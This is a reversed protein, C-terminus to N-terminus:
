CVIDRMKLCARSSQLCDSTIYLNKLVCVEIDVVVVMMVMMVM